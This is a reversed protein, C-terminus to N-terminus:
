LKESKYELLIKEIKRSNKIKTIDLATVGKNYFRNKFEFDKTSKINKDIGKDMLRKIIESQYLSYRIVILHLATFGNEDQTNLNNTEEIITFINELRTPKNKIYELLLESYAQDILIKCGKDEYYNILSKFRNDKISLKVTRKIIEFVIKKSISSTILFDISNYDNFFVNILTGSIKLGSELLLLIVDTNKIKAQNPLYIKNPNFGNDILFKVQKYNSFDRFPDILNIDCGKNKLHTIIKQNFGFNNLAVNILTGEKTDFNPDAGLELLYDILKIDRMECALTLPSYNVHGYFDRKIKSNKFTDLYVTVKIDLSDKFKSLYRIKKFNKDFTAKILENRIDKDLMENGQYPFTFPYKDKKENLFIRRLLNNFFSM